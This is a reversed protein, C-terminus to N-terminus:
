RWAVPQKTSSNTPLTVLLDALPLWFTKRLAVVVAEQAPTLTTQLHHSTHSRDEVSDRGKWRRITDETVGLEAVLAAM